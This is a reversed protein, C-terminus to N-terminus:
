QDRNQFFFLSLENAGWLYSYLKKYTMTLTAKNMASTDRTFNGESTVPGWQNNKLMPEPLPNTSDPLLGNVSGFNVWIETVM